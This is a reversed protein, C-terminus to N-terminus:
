DDHTEEDAETPTCDAPLWIWGEQSVLLEDAGDPGALRGRDLGWLAAVLACWLADLLDAEANKGVGAKRLFPESQRLRAHHEQLLPSTRAPSPYTEIATWSETQWVAPAVQQFGMKRLYHLGKSAQSGILDRVASLPRFGREFLTLECQRFLYPNRDAEEPVAALPSGSLLRSFAAPWGLPTDMAVVVPRSPEPLNSPAVVASARCSEVLQQRLNGRWPPCVVTLAELSSGELVCVADRSKGRDCNWAGVDWGVFLTPTM